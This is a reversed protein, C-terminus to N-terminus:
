SFFSLLTTNGALWIKQSIGGNRYTGCSLWYKWDISILQDRLSAVVSTIISWATGRTGPEFYTFIIQSIPPWGTGQGLGHVAWCPVFIRISTSSCFLLTGISSVLISGCLLYKPPLYDSALSGLFKSFGFAVAFASSILGFDAKTIALNEMMTPIAITVTKRLCALCFYGLCLSVFITWPFSPASKEHVVDKRRRKMM